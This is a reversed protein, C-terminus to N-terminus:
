AALRWERKAAAPRGVGDREEARKRAHDDAARQEGEAEGDTHSAGPPTVIAAADQDDGHEEREPEEHERRADVLAVHERDEPQQREQGRDVPAPQRGRDHKGRGREDVEVADQRGLEIGRWVELGQRQAVEESLRDPDDRADAQVQDAKCEDYPLHTRACNGLGIWVGLEAGILQGISASPTPHRRPHAALVVSGAM